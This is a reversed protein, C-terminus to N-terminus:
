NTTYVEVAAYVYTRSSFFRMEMVVVKVLFWEGLGSNLGNYHVCDVIHFNCPSMDHM